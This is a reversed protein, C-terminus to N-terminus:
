TNVVRAGPNIVLKRVLVIQDSVGGISDAIMIADDEKTDRTERSSASGPGTHSSSSPSPGVDEDSDSYSDYDNVVTYSVQFSVM